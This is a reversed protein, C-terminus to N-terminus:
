LICMWRAMSGAAEVAAQLAEIPFISSKKAIAVMPASIPWWCNQTRMTVMTRVNRLRVPWGAAGRGAIPRELKREAQM